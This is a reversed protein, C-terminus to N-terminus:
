AARLAVLVDGGTATAQELELEWGSVTGNRSMATSTRTIVCMVCSTVHVTTRFLKILHHRYSEPVVQRFCGHLVRRTVERRAMSCILPSSLSAMLPSSLSALQVASMIDCNVIANDLM